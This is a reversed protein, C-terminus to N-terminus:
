AAKDGAVTAYLETGIPMDHLRPVRAELISGPIDALWCVTGVRRFRAHEAKRAEVGSRACREQLLAIEAQLERRQADLADVLDALGSLTAMEVAPWEGPGHDQELTRVLAVLPRAPREVQGAVAPQEIENM